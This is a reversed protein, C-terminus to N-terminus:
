QCSNVDATNVWDCRIQVCLIRPESLIGSLHKLKKFFDAPSLFAFLGARLAQLNFDTLAYM